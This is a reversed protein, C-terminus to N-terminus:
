GRAFRRAVVARIDSGDVALVIAAFVGLAVIAAVAALGASALPGPAGWSGTWGGAVAAVAGGALGAGLARPLGAAAAGGAAARTAALLLVGSLTMGAANGLGLAVVADRAPMAAVLAIDAIIVAAWGAVIAVAADRGRGQAYLVRGLHAVLGYGVLGPAWALLARALLAPDDAGPVAPANDLFVRAVPTATAALLAAGLCSALIVARSTGAVGRALGAPDVADHRVSLSPFASTAIPVALVAYPLLYVTWTYHYLVVSAAAGEHNALAIIVLAAVQQAIVTALGALALSRALTAVGRPFRLTPHLRLGTGRLPVVLSGALVAVGVTTGGALVLEAGRTVADPDAVADYVLYTGAVVLSSLLPALAPALFRRDAQLVGSLVVAVGYLPIQPLFVLLMRAAMDAAGPCGGREGLLADMLPGVAVLGVVAVPLLVAVSWTLLVSSVQAAEARRGRALRGALLPVVAGALAGGAVIEFAINPVMNATTYAEGVCTAGVTRSFVIVRGFGAIRAVVTVAAILLAAGAVGSALRPLRTM